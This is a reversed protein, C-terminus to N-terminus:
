NTTRVVEIGQFTKKSLVMQAASVKSYSQIWNALENTCQEKDEACIRAENFFNWFSEPNYFNLKFSEEEPFTWQDGESTNIRRMFNNVKFNNNKKGGVWRKSILSQTILTKDLFEDWFGAAKLLGAGFSACGAELYKARTTQDKVKLYQNYPDASM